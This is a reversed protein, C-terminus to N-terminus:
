TSISLCISTCCVTTFCHYGELWIWTVSYFILSELSNLLRLWLRHQSIFLWCQIMLKSDGGYILGAKFSCSVLSIKCRCDPSHLGPWERNIELSHPTMADRLLESVLSLSSPPPLPKLSSRSTFTSPLSLFSTRRLTCNRLSPLWPSPRSRVRVKLNTTRNHFYFPHCVTMVTLIIPFKADVVVPWPYLSWMFPWVYCFGCLILLPGFECFNATPVLLWVFPRLSSCDTSFAM